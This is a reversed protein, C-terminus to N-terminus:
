VMGIESEVLRTIGIDFFNSFSNFYYQIMNQIQILIQDEGVKVADLKSQLGKLYEHFETVNELTIDNYYKIIEILLEPISNLVDKFKNIAKIDTVQFHLAQNIFERIYLLVVRDGLFRITPSKRMSIPYRALGTILIRTGLSYKRDIEDLLLSSNKSSTGSVINHIITGFVNALDMLVDSFLTKSIDLLFSVCFEGSGSVDKFDFGIIERRLDILLEYLSNHNDDDYKIIIEDTNLKFASLIAQKILQPPWEKPNLNFVVKQKDKDFARVILTKDDIPYLNVMSKEELKALNTWEQPFTIAKSNGLKIISREYKDKIDQM